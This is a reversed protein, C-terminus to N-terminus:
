APRSNLRREEDQQYGARALVLVDCTQVGAARLALAAAHVTSGTTLVDDVILVRAGQLEPCQEARFAGRLNKRRQLPTLHVQKPTRRIKRLLQSDLPCDTRRAIMEAMQDPLSTRLMPRNMWHHPIPIVVDYVAPSLVQPADAILRSILAACLGPNGGAKLQLISQKLPGHYEGIARVSGFAYSEERCRACGREDMGYPGITAACRSCALRGPIILTSTCAPCLAPWAIQFRNNRVSDDSDATPGSLTSTGCLPCCPPLLLDVM